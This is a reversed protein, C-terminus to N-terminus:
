KGATALQRGRKQAVHEEIVQRAYATHSPKGPATEALAIVERKLSRPVPMNISDNLKNPKSRPM